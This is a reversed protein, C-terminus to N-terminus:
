QLLGRLPSNFLWGHCWSLLPRFRDHPLEHVAPLLILPIFVISVYPVAPTPKQDDSLNLWSIPQAYIGASAGVSGSPHTILLRNFFKSRTHNSGRNKGLGQQRDAALRIPVQSQASIINELLKGSRKCMEQIIASVYKKFVHKWCYFYFLKPNCIICKIGNKSYSRKLFLHM